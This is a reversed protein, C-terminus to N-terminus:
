IAAEHREVSKSSSPSGVLAGSGPLNNYFTLRKERWEKEKEGKRQNGEGYIIELGRKLKREMGKIDEKEAKSLNRKYDITSDM